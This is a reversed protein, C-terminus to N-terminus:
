PHQSPPLPTQSPTPTNILTSPTKFPHPNKPHYPHKQSTTSTQSLTLTNKIPIFINTLPHPHKHPTSKKLLPLPLPLPLPTKSIIFIDTVPYPLKSPPLLTQPLHLQQKPPPLPIKSPTGTKRIKKNTKGCVRIKLRKIDAVHHRPGKKDPLFTIPILFNSITVFVWNM